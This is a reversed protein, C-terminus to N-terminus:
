FEITPQHYGAIDQTNYELTADGLQLGDNHIIQKEM